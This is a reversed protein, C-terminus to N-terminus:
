LHFARTIVLCAAWVIPMSWSLVIQAIACELMAALPVFREFFGMLPSGAAAGVSDYVHSALGTIGSTTLAPIINALNTNMLAITGGIALLMVSYITLTTLLQKTLGVGPLTIQATEVKTTIQPTEQFSLLYRELLDRSFFWFGFITLWLLIERTVAAYDLFKASFSAFAAFPGTFALPTFGASLANFPGSVSFAALEESTSGIGVASVGAGRSIGANGLATVLNDSQLTASAVLSDIIPTADFPSDTYYKMLSDRNQNDIITQLKEDTTGGGSGGGSSTYSGGLAGAIKDIGERFLNGTLDTDSTVWLPKTGDPQPMVGNFSLPFVPFPLTATGADYGFSGLLQYTPEGGSVVFSAGLPSSAVIKYVKVRKPFGVGDASLEFTRTEPIGYLVATSGDPIEADSSDVYFFAINASTTDSFANTNTLTITFQKTLPPPGGQALAVVPLLLCLVLFVSVFLTKM